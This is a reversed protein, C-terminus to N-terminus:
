WSVVNGGGRAPMPRATGDHLRARDPGERPDRRQPQTAAPPRAPPAERQALAAIPAQKPRHHRCYGSRAAAAECPLGNSRTGKCRRVSDIPHDVWAPDPPPAVVIRVPVSPVSGLAAAIVGELWDSMSSGTAECHARVAAYTTGKVSLTRRNQVKGM